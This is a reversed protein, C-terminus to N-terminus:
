EFIIEHEDPFIMWNHYWKNEREQTSESDDDGPCLIAGLINEAEGIVNQFVEANMTKALFFM